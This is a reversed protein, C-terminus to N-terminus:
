PQRYSAHNDPPEPKNAARSGFVDVQLTQEPGPPSHPRMKDSSRTHRPLFTHWFSTKPRCRGCVAAWLTLEYVYARCADRFCPWANLKSRVRGAFAFQLENRRQSKKSEKNKKQKEMLAVLGCRVNSLPRLRVMDVFLLRHRRSMCM